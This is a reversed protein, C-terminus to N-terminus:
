SRTLSDDIKRSIKDWDKEAIQQYVPHRWAVEKNLASGRCKLNNLSCLPRKIFEGNALPLTSLTSSIM